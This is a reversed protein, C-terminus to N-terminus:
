SHFSSKVHISFGKKDNKFPKWRLLNKPLHSGSKLKYKILMFCIVTRSLVFNFSSCTVKHVGLPKIRLENINEHKEIVHFMASESRFTFAM